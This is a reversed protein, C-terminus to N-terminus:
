SISLVFSTIKSQGSLSFLINNNYIFRLTPTANFCAFNVEQEASACPINTESVNIFYIDTAVAFKLMMTKINQCYGCVPSYYYLYYSEKTIANINEISIHKFNQYDLVEGEQPLKTCSILTLTILLVKYKNM